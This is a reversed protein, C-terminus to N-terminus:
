LVISLQVVVAIAQRSGGGVVRDFDEFNGRGAVVRGEGGEETVLTGDPLHGPRVGFVAGDEGRAAVVALNDDPLLLGGAHPALEPLVVAVVGGDVRDRESRVGETQDERRAGRISVNGDPRVLEVVGPGALNNWGVGAADGGDGPSGCKVGVRVVATVVVVVGSIGSNRRQAEDRATAVVGDTEPEERVRVLGGGLAGGRAPDFDGREVLPLLGMAVPDAVDRPRGRQAERRGAERRARLVLRDADPGLVGRAGPADGLGDGERLPRPAHGPREHPIHESHRLAVVGHRQPM